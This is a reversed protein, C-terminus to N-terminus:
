RGLFRQVVVVTRAPDEEHPVHGLADFVVKVSGPIDHAFRDANEVPILRDRQGWLILTPLALQPVEAEIGASPAQRFRDAVAQRNGARLTLDYYRDVLEPTVKSPDGYVNRVSSEVIARPLIRRMLRSLAPNQAIRFGIPVSTSRMPYGAADVLILKAFREPHARVLLVAVEGGFSNGGVIMRTVHLSDLLETVVTVYRALSYDGDAMPGTLGFGPLDFRIVRHKPALAKTWGDWTHLSASTGHLLVIPLSDSRLGEDRVHIRMGAVNVFKSPPPAWRASLEAVSRDPAWSVAIAGSVLLIVAGALFGLARLALRLTV